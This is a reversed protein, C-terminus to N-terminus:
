TNLNKEIFLYTNRKHAKNLRQHNFNSQAFLKESTLRLTLMQGM